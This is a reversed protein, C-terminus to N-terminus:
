NRNLARADVRGRGRGRGRRNAGNRNPESRLRCANWEHPGPGFYGCARCARRRTPVLGPSVDGDIRPLYHRIVVQRGRRGLTHMVVMVDDEIGVFPINAQHKDWESATWPTLAEVLMYERLDSHMWADAPLGIRSLEDKLCRYSNACYIRAGNRAKRLAPNSVPGKPFKSLKKLARNLKMLARLAWTDKRMSHNAKRVSLPKELTQRDSRVKRLGGKPKAALSSKEAGHHAKEYVSRTSVKRTGFSM